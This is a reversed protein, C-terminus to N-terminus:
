FDERKVKGERIADEIQTGVDFLNAFTNISHCILKGHYVSQLNKIVIRVQDNESPRQVMKAAKNRLRTLFKAFSVNYKQRTTEFDRSTVDFEKNYEYQTIFAKVVNEWNKTKQTDLNSYWVFSVSITRQTGRAM